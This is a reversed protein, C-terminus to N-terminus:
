VLLLTQLCAPLVVAELLFFVMLNLILSSEEDFYRYQTICEKTNRIYM